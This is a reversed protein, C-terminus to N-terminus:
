KILTEITQKMLAFPMAGNISLRLGDNSFIVPLQGYNDRYPEMVSMIASKQKDTLPSKLVLVNFPTGGVGANNGDSSDAQVRAAHRGSTLCNEFQTRDVGAEEAFGPLAAMDVTGQLEVTSFIRDIFTWFAANGGLEAVCETAEAQKPSNEHGSIGPIPFHRYVWALKGSKGYVDVLQQMTEHFRKCFPCETDSFEVLVIPAEPNGRIHDRATDVPKLEIAELSLPAQVAAAQENAPARRTTTGKLFIAAAILGGAVVIAVPVTLPNQTHQEM